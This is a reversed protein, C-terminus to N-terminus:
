ILKVTLLDGQYDYAPMVRCRAGEAM